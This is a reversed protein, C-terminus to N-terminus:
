LSICFCNKRHRIKTIKVLKTSLKQNQWCIIGHTLGIMIVQRHRFHYDQIRYHARFDQWIRLRKTIISIKPIILPQQRLRWAEYTSIGVINIVQITSSYYQYNRILQCSCSLSGVQKKTEIQKLSKVLFITTKYGIKM